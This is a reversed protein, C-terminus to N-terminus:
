NLLYKCLELEVLCQAPAPLLPSACLLRDECHKPLLRSASATLSTCVVRLFKMITSHLNLRDLLSPFSRFSLYPQGIPSSPLSRPAPRLSNSRSMSSSATLVPMGTLATSSKGHGMESAKRLLPFFFPQLPTFRHPVPPPFPTRPATTMCSSKPISLAPEPHSHSHSPGSTLLM